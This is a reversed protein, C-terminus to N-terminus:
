PLAAPELVSREAIPPAADRETKHREAAAAAVAAVRALDEPTDDAFVDIDSGGGSSDSGPAAPATATLSDGLWASMMGFRANQVALDEALGECAEAGSEDM